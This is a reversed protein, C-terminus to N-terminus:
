ETRQRGLMSINDLDNPTSWFLYINDGNEEYGVSVGHKYIEEDFDFVALKIQSNPKLTHYFNIAYILEEKNHVRVRKMNSAGIINM